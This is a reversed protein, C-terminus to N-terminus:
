ETDKIYFLIEAESFHKFEQAFAKIQASFGAESNYAAALEEPSFLPRKEEIM